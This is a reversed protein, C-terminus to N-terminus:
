NVKEDFESGMWNPKDFLEFGMRGSQPMGKTAVEMRAKDVQDAGVEIGSGNRGYEPISDGGGDVGAGGASTNKEERGTRFVIGALDTRGCVVDDWRVDAGGDAAVLGDM